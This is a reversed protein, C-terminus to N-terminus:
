GSGDGGEAYAGQTGPGEQGEAQGEPNEFEPVECGQAFFIRATITSSTNTIGYTNGASITLTGDPNEKPLFEALPRSLERRNYSAELFKGCGAGAWALRCMALM